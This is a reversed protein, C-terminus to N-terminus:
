YFIGVNFSTARTRNKPEVLNDVGDNATTSRDVDWTEYLVSIKIDVPELGFAFGAEYAYGKGNKQRFSVDHRGGGVDSLYSTNRGSLWRRYEAGAFFYKGDYRVGMPLYNYTTDRVYSIVLDNRWFRYGYGVYPTFDEFTLGAVLRYETINDDTTVKVPTGSFTSGDYELNGVLYKAQGRLQAHEWPSIKLDIAVGNLPGKETMLGPEKYDVQSHVYSAGITVNEGAWISSSFLGLFLLPWLM